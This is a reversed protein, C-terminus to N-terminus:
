WGVAIARRGTGLSVSTMYKVSADTVWCRAGVTLQAETRMIRHASPRWTSRFVLAVMKSAEGWPSTRVMVLAKVAVGGGVVIRGRLMQTTTPAVEALAEHVQGVVPLDLGAEGCLHQPQPHGEFAHVGLVGQLDDFLLGMAVRVAISESVRMCFVLVAVVGWPEFVHSSVGWLM